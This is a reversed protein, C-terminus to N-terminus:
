RGAPLLDRCFSILASNFIRPQEWSIFHGSDQILFPGVLREFCVEARRAFNPGVIGDQTGYLVMTEVTTNPRELMAPLPSLQPNMVAQYGRLSARFQTAAGFQEAMFTATADDFSGPAALPVPEAGVRWSRLTYYGKVYDVREADSALRALLEDPHNGHDDLHSSVASVEEYQSGEIGAAAYAEPLNASPGNWVIQRLALGPFRLSMDQVTAAGFDGGALVAREHGLDRLLDRIDLAVDVITAGAAPDAPVASDGFGRSDPVIVEFGADALGRINRWFLRKTSPWGHVLVLPVGGIGERVFAIEVGDSVLARHTEFAAADLENTTPQVRAV